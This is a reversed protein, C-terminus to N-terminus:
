NIEKLEVNLGAKNGYIKTIVFRMKNSSIGRTLKQTNTYQYTDDLYTINEPKERSKAVIFLAISKFYEKWLGHSFNCVGAVTDKTPIGSYKLSYIPVNVPITDMGSSVSSHEGLETLQYFVPDYKTVTNPLVQLEYVSEFNGSSSSEIESRYLEIRIKNFEDHKIKKPPSYRILVMTEDYKNRYKSIIEYNAELPLKANIRSFHEYIVDQYKGDDNIYFDCLLQTTNKHLINAVVLARYIASELAKVTDPEPDSIGIAFVAKDKSIPPNAFWDPITQVPVYLYKASHHERKTYKEDVTEEEFIKEINSKDIQAFLSNVTLLFFLTILLIKM